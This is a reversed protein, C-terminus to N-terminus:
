ELNQFASQLVFEAIFCSLVSRWAPLTQDESTGVITITLSETVPLRYETPEAKCASVDVHPDCSAHM